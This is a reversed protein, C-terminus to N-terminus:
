LVPQWRAQYAKEGLAGQAFAAAESLPVAIVNLITNTSCDTMRVGVAEVAEQIQTSAQALASMVANIEESRQQSDPSGCVGVLLTTGLVTDATGVDEDVLDFGDLASQVAAETDSSIDVASASPMDTASVTTADTPQAAQQVATPTVSESDPGTLRPLLLVLAVIIILALLGVVAPMLWAPRERPTTTTVTPTPAATRGQEVVEDDIDFEDDFDVFDDDNPLAPLTPPPTVRQMGSQTEAAAVAAPYEADLSDILEDAGPYGPDIRLVNNLAIRAEGPNTVAHAYLWWADANDPEAAVIPKLLAEAEALRESEILEYAQALVRETSEGM